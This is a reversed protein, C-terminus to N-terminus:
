EIEGKGAAKEERLARRHQEKIDKSTKIRENKVDTEAIHSRVKNKFRVALIIGLVGLVIFGAYALAWLFQSHRM